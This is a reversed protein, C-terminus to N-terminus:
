DQGLWCQVLMFAIRRVSTRPWTQDWPSYICLVCLICKAGKDARTVVEMDVSGRCLAGSCHGESFFVEVGLILGLLDTNNNYM